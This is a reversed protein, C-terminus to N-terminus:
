DNSHESSSSSSSSSSRSSSSSSSEHKLLPPAAQNKQKERRCNGCSNDDHHHHDSRKTKRRPSNCASNLIQHQRVDPQRHFPNKNDKRNQKLPPLRRHKKPQSTNKSGSAPRNQNSYPRPPRNHANRYRRHSWQRSVPSPHVRISDPQQNWCSVECFLRFFHPQQKPFCFM